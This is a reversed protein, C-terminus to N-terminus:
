ALRDAPAAPSFTQDFLSQLRSDCRAELAAALRPRMHTRFRSNALGTIASAVLEAPEREAVTVLFEAAAQVPSAGLSILLARRVELSILPRQWFEKLLEIAQPDRCQALASAAELQIDQDASQLFRGVFAVAGKPALSLLSAFCHGLVDPEHDGVLVRLRLPLVGESRGLQDIAIAGNIRVLKDPDALADTLYTLIQMPDLLCDTLALACTGRLPGASDARGGWTPELQVHVMGRLFADAGRHGLQRLATALENKALCRPDSKEADVFFRDFATLLDPLLDECRLEAAIVAARSVVYNNRDALAERLQQRVAVSNIGSRLAELAELKKNFTQRSM